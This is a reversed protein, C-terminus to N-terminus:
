FPDNFKSSAAAGSSTLHVHCDIVGPIITKGTCDVYDDGANHSGQGGEVVSTIRGGDIVVDRTGPLFHTGDFVTAHTLVTVM